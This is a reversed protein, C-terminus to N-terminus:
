SYVTPNHKEMYRESKEIQKWGFQKYLEHADATLLMWRRLSQLDSHNMITEMLWKSLGKGRYDPLVFVDGLYAVTAYDTVVRAYGIQKENQFLGFNLSNEISKQVIELPINKAWYSQHALFGHIVTLDMRNSDTTLEFGEKKLSLIQM